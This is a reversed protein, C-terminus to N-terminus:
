AKRSTTSGEFAEWCNHEIQHCRKCLLEFNSLENNTRDHDIHHVCWEDKKADLLNKDCRNCVQRAKRILPALKHFRAIGNVYHPSDKGQPQGQGRGIDVRHLRGEEKAKRRRYEQTRQRQVERRCEESDCVKQNRGTKEKCLNCIKCCFTGM